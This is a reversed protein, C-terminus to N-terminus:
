NLFKIRKNNRLSEDQDLIRKKRSITEMASYCAECMKQDAGPEKQSLVYTCHIHRLFGEKDRHTFSNEYCENEGPDCFGRCLEWRNVIDLIKEISDVSSLSSEIGKLEIPKGFIAISIKMDDKVVIQKSMVPEISGKVLKATCESFQIMKSNGFTINHRAWSIPFQVSKPDNFITELLYNEPPNCNVFVPIHDPIDMSEKIESDDIIENEELKVDVIPLNPNLEESPSSKIKATTSNNRKKPSKRKKQNTSM